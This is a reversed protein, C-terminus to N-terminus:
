GAAISQATDRVNSYQNDTIIEIEEESKDLAAVLARVEARDSSQIIGKLPGNENFSQDDPSWDGDQITAPGLKTPHDM